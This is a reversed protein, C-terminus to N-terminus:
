IMCYKQGEELSECTSFLFPIAYDLKVYLVM